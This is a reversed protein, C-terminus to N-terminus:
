SRYASAGIALLLRDAPVVIRGGGVEIPQALAVRQRESVDGLDIIAVAIDARLVQYDGDGAGVVHRGDIRRGIRRRDSLHGAVAVRLVNRLDVAGDADGVLIEAVRERRRDGAIRRRSTSRRRGHRNLVGDVNRCQDGVAGDAEIREGGIAFLPRDAPVIIRGNGIEVPQALAVRESQSVHRLDIVTM